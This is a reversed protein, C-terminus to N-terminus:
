KSIGSAGESNSSGLAFFIQGALSNATIESPVLPIEFCTNKELGSKVMMKSGSFTLKLVRSKLGSISYTRAPTHWLNQKVVGTSSLFDPHKM